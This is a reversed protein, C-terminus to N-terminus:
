GQGNLGRGRAGPCEWVGLIADRCDQWVRGSFVVDCLLGNKAGYLANKGKGTDKGMWGKVEVELGRRARRLPMGVNERLEVGECVDLNWRKSGLEVGARRFDVGEVWDGGGSTFFDPDVGQSGGGTGGGLFMHTQM